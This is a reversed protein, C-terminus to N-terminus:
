KVMDSIDHLYTKKKNPVPLLSGSIFKQFIIFVFVFPHNKETSLIRFVKNISVNHYHYVYIGEM